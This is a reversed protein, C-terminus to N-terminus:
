NIWGRKAAEAGAQFRSTAALRNMLTAMHRRTTRLSIGLHRAATEDTAGAALLRLLKLETDALKCELDCDPQRSEPPLPTATKWFQDFLVTLVSIMEPQDTKVLETDRAGSDAWIIAFKRDSITMEPIPALTTRVYAIASIRTLEYALTPDSRVDDAHCLIKVIIRPPLASTALAALDTGSSRSTRLSILWEGTTRSARSRSASLSEPDDATSEDESAGHSPASEPREGPRDCQLM